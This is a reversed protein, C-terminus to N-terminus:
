RVHLPTSREHSRRDRGRWEPSRTECRAHQREVVADNEILRLRLTIFPSVFIMRPPDPPPLDVMMLSTSPRNFGSEPRTSTSPSSM